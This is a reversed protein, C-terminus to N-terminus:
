HCTGCQYGNVTGTCYGITGDTKLCLLSGAVTTGIGVFRARGGNIDLDTGPSASNIGVNGSFTSNGGTTSRIGGNVDLTAGPLATGIGVNGVQVILTGGVTTWTGIGVNGNIVVLGGLPTTTGIGVNGNFITTSQTGEVDLQGRPLWTGIGVNGNMVSLGSNSVFTTGIGVTGGGLIRVTGQVDLKQGANASGVGLNGQFINVVGNATLVVADYPGDSFGAGYYASNYDYIAATATITGATLAGASTVNFSNGVALAAGPVWTGIGVNNAFYGLSLTGEVDLNGKTVWTGIGVNGNMVSLAAGTSTYSTGIGVNGRNPLYVDNTNSTTWQSTSLGTLQAGNGIFATARVTGIVDLAQGPLTSGVGVNTGTVTMTPITNFGMMLTNATNNVVNVGLAFAESATSEVNTGIAVSGTQTAELNTNNAYGLALSGVGTAELIGEFAYGMAISGSNNSLMTGAASGSFVDGYAVSGTGSSTLTSASNESNGGAISGTGSSVISGNGSGSTTLEGFISNGNVYLQAGPVWTGIGVNGGFTVVSLTGEVDLNGKTVWTGIGVNGNMVALAAGAKTITTGIGVNGNNPLYVDNTNSTTWQSSSLGTLQSGNGIFAMARVTGVIDLAQGPHSSGIGVNGAFIALSTSGEVDLGGRPIWTGIGVNGNMVTLAGAPITTGIGLNGNGDIRMREVFQTSFYIDDASNNYGNGQILASGSSGAGGGFRFGNGNDSQVYGNVELAQAPSQVGVGINGNMVVLSGGPVWTGIGVNNAFYGVSLTGEIDLNGKTVWTGIGVNGNMVSLAAGAKTITTGIGVNGNNPLYVDNTNSTTWQSSAPLNTLASGNGVFTTARITGQVDLLQGPNTSGIGVNGTFIDAGAGNPVAYAISIMGAFFLLFAAIPKVRNVLSQLLYSHSIKKLSYISMVFINYIQYHLNCNL